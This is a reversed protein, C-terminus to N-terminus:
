MYVVVVGENKFVSASPCFQFAINLICFLQKLNSHIVPLKICKLINEEINACDKVSEFLYEDFFFFLQKPKQQVEVIILSDVDGNGLSELVEAEKLVKQKVWQVAELLGM